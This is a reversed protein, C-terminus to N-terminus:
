RNPTPSVVQTARPSPTLTPAATPLQLSSTSTATPTDTPTPTPTDTPPAEQPATPTEQGAPSEISPTDGGGGGDILFFYAAGVGGLVLILLLVLVGLVIAKVNLGGGKAKTKAKARPKSGSGPFVLDDDLDDDDTVLFDDIFTSGHRPKEEEFEDEIVDGLLQSINFTGTRLAELGKKAVENNPNLALVNELCIERDEDSEVVSSLWLWVEENNEDEELIEELILRGQEQDGMRIHEIAEALTPM